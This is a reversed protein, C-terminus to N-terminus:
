VNTQYNGLKQTDSCFCRPDISENKCPASDTLIIECIFLDSQQVSMKTSCGILVIWTLMPFPECEIVVSVGGQEQKKQQTPVDKELFHLVLFPGLRLPRTTYLAMSAAHPVSPQPNSGWVEVLAQLCMQFYTSWFPEAAMSVEICDAPTVGSTFILIVCGLFCAFCPDVRAKFGLDSM